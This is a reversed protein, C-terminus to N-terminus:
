NLRQHRNSGGTQMRKSRRESLKKMLLPALGLAMFLPMCIFSGFFMWRMFKESWPNFFKGALPDTVGSGLTHMGAAVMGSAYYGFAAAGLAV